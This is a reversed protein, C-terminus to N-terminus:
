PTAKTFREVPRGPRWHAVRQGGDGFRVAAAEGIDLTFLHFRDDEPRWGIAEYLAVGYREREDPDDIAIAMGYLKVEGETGDKASVTTHVLCRADRM